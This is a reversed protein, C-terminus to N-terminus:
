SSFLELTVLQVSLTRTANAVDFQFTVELTQAATTDIALTGTAVGGVQGQMAEALGFQSNTAGLNFIYGEFLIGIPTASDFPYSGGAVLAAITSGGFKLRWTPIKTFGGSNFVLQGLIRLRLKGNQGITNAPISVSYVSSEVATNSVTVLNRNTDQFKMAASSGLGVQGNAAIQASTVTGGEIQPDSTFAMEAAIQAPKGVLASRFRVGAVGRMVVGISNGVFTREFGELEFKGPAGQQPKWLQVLVPNASLNSFTILGVNDAPGLTLADTYSDGTALANIFEAM